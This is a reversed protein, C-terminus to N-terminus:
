GRVAGPTVRGAVDQEGADGVAEPGRHAEAVQHGTQAAVLEGAV